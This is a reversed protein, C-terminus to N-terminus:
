IDKEPRNIGVLCHINLFYCLDKRHENEVLMQLQAFRRNTRLPSLRFTRFFFFSFRQFRSRLVQGSWEQRWDLVDSGPVLLRVM